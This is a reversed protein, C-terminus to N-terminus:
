PSPCGSNDEGVADAEARVVLDEVEGVEGAAGDEGIGEVDRRARQSLTLDEDRQLLGVALGVAHRHIGFAVDPDGVPVAPADGAM